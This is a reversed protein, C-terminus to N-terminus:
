SGPFNLERGLIVCSAFESCFNRGGTSLEGASGTSKVMVEWM